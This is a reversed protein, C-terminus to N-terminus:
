LLKNWRTTSSSWGCRTSRCFSMWEVLHSSVLVRVEITNSIYGTASQEFLLRVANFLNYNTNYALFEIFFGRTRRDVWFKDVIKKFNLYSNRLNRGLYAV